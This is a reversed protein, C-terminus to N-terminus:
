LFLFGSSNHFFDSFANRRPSVINHVRDIRKLVRDGILPKNQVRPNNRHLKKSDWSYKLQGGKYVFSDELYIKRVFQKRTKKESGNVVRSSGGKRDLADEVMNFDRSVVWKRKKDISDALENWLNTRLHPKNPAYVALIGMKDLAPHELHAWAARGSPVIGKDTVFQRM